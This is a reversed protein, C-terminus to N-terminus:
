DANPNRGNDVLYKEIHAIERNLSDLKKADEEQRYSISAAAARLDKLREGKREVDITKPM